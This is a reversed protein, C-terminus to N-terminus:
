FSLELGILLHDSGTVNEDVWTFRINNRLRVDVMFYDIRLGWGKSRHNKHYAYFTYDQGQPHIYRYADIYKDRPFVEFHSTIEEITCSAKGFCEDSDWCDMPTLMVNLDGAVIVPKVVELGRLFEAFHRDWQNIRYDM